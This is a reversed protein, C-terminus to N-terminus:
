PSTLTEIGNKPEQALKKKKKKKKLKHQITKHFTRTGMM